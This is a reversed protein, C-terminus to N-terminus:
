EISNELIDGQNKDSGYRFVSKANKQTFIVHNLRFNIRSVKWVSLFFQLPLAPTVATPFGTRPNCEAQPGPGLIM